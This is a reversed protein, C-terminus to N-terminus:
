AWNVNGPRKMLGYIWVLMLCVIFGYKHVGTQNHLFRGKKVMAVYCKVSCVIRNTMFLRKLLTIYLLLSYGEHYGSKSGTNWWRCKSKEWQWLLVYWLIESVVSPVRTPGNYFIYIISGQPKLIQVSLLIQFFDYCYKHTVPMLVSKERGWCSANLWSWNWIDELRSGNERHNSKAFLFLKWLSALRPLDNSSVLDPHGLLWNLRM